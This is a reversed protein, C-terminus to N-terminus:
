SKISYAYNNAMDTNQFMISFAVALINNDSSKISPIPHSLVECEAISYAKEIYEISKALMVKEIIRNSPPDLLPSVGIVIVRRHSVRIQWESQVFYM